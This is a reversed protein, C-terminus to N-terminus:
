RGRRCNLRPEADHGPEDPDGEENAEEYDAPPRVRGGHPVMFSASVGASRLVVSPEASVELMSVIAGAWDRRRSKSVSVRPLEIASDPHLTNSDLVGFPEPLCRSLPWVNLNGVSFLGAM